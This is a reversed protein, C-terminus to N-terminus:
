NFRRRVFQTTPHTTAISLALEAIRAKSCWDAAGDSQTVQDITNKYAGSSFPVFGGELPFKFRIAPM